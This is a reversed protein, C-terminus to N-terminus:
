ETKGQGDRRFSTATGLFALAVAFVAVGLALPFYFLFGWGSQDTLARWALLVAVLTSIGALVFFVRRPRRGAM